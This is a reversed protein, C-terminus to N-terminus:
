SLFGKYVAQLKKYDKMDLMKIVAPELMCLNAFMGVEQELESGTLKEAALQDGMTPRRVNITEITTGNHEVPYELTVTENAM